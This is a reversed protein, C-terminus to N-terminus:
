KVKRPVMGCEPCRDPTARLDYGCNRCYETQERADRRLRHRDYLIAAVGLISGFVTDMPFLSLFTKDWPPPNNNLAQLTKPFAILFGVFQMVAFSYLVARFEWCDRWSDKKHETGASERRQRLDYAVCGVVIIGFWIAALLEDYWQDRMMWYPFPHVFRECAKYIGTAFDLLTVAAILYVYRRKMGSDDRM